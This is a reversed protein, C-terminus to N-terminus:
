NATNQHCKCYDSGAVPIRACKKGTKTLGRCIYRYTGDGKSMKNEKWAASAEDFDINVEFLHNKSRTQM